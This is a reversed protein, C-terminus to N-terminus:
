SRRRRRRRRGPEGVGVGGAHLDRAARRQPRHDPRAHRADRDRPSYRSEGKRSCSITTCCRCTSARARRARRVRRAAARADARSRWAPLRSRSAAPQAAASMASVEDGAPPVVQSARCGAARAHALQSAPSKRSARMCRGPARELQLQGWEVDLQKALDQEKQSSSSCSARRTSRPSWRRARLCDARRAAPLQPPDDDTLVASAEGRRAARRQARASQGRNRRTSPQVPKGILRLSRRRCSARACRCPAAAVPRRAANDRMFRKVIRDELSHFSIVVLRGGPALLEVCQPLVLSLEELEQNVHIRLAQFTRTAPNQGPERTRFPRAVIEALQRTTVIPEGRDLRLLRQQLRNLLGNKAM